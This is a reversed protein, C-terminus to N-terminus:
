RKSRQTAWIIRFPKEDFAAQFKAIGAFTFSARNSERVFLLVESDDSLMFRTLPQKLTSQTKGRWEFREDDLWQDGYEHGTRAPTGVTSFIFVTNGVRHYGTYWNGGAPEDIGIISKIRERSYRDGAKFLSALREHKKSMGSV